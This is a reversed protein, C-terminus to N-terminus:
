PCRPIILVLCQILYQVCIIRGWYSRCVILVYFVDHVHELPCVAERGEPSPNQGYKAVCKLFVIPTGWERPCRERKFFLLIFSMWLRPLPPLYFNFSLFKESLFIKDSWLCQVLFFLPYLKFIPLNFLPYHIGSFAHRDRWLLVAWMIHPQKQKNWTSRM